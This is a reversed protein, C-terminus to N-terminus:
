QPYRRGYGSCPIYLIVDYAEDRGPIEDGIATLKVRVDLGGTVRGNIGARVRCFRQRLLDRSVPMREARRGM